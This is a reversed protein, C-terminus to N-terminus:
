VEYLANHLHLIQLMCNIECYEHCQNRQVELSNARKVAALTPLGGIAAGGIDAGGGGVLEASEVATGDMTLYINKTNM